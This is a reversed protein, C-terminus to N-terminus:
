ARGRTAAVIGAALAAFLGGALLAVAMPGPGPGCMRPGLVLAGVILAVFPFFGVALALARHQRLRVNAWLLVWIGMVVPLAFTLLDVPHTLAHRLMPGFAARGTAGDLVAELAGSCRLSQGLLFTGALLRLGRRARRRGDM